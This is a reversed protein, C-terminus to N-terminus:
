PRWFRRVRRRAPYLQSAAVATSKSCFIPWCTRSMLAQTAKSLLRGVVKDTRGPGAVLMSIELIEPSGECEELAQLDEPGEPGEQGERGQAAMFTPRPPVPTLIELTEVFEELVLVAPALAVWARATAEQLLVTCTPRRVVLTAQRRVVEGIIEPLRAETTLPLAVSTTPRRVEVVFSRLHGEVFILPPDVAITALLRDAGITALLLLVVSTIPRAAIILLHPLEIQVWAAWRLLGVACLVTARPILATTDEGAEVM